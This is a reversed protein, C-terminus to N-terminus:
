RTNYIHQETRQRADPTMALLSGLSPAQDGHGVFLVFLVVLAVAHPDTM